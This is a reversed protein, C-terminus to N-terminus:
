PRVQKWQELTVIRGVPARRLNAPMFPGIEQKVTRAADWFARAEIQIAYDGHQYYWTETFFLSM